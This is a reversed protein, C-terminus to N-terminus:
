LANNRARRLQVHAILDFIIRRVWFFIEIMSLVSMGSFLGLTGGLNALQDASIVFTNNKQMWISISPFMKYM